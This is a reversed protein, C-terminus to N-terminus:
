ICKLKNELDIAGPHAPERRLVEDVSELAKEHRHLSLCVLGLYYHADVYDPAVSVASVLKQEAKGFESREYYIKAQNVLAVEPTLYRKDSELGEFISLAEDVRGGSAFLCAQNNLIESRICSNMPLSLAERYCVCSEDERGLLFLLTARHALYVPKTDKELARNVYELARMYGHSRSNEDELELLSMKYYEMGLKTNKKPGCGVLFLFFLVLFLFRKQM